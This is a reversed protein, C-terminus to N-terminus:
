GRPGLARHREAAGRWASYFRFQALNDLVVPGDRGRRAAARPTALARAAATPGLLDGASPALAPVQRKFADDTSTSPAVLRIWEVLTLLSSRGIPADGFDFSGPDIELPVPSGVLHLHMRHGPELTATRSRRVEPDTVYDRLIEGQVVLLVDKGEIRQTGRETRCSLTSGELRGGTAVLPRCATRVSSEPIALSRVGGNALRAVEEDADGRPLLRWLDFACRRSRQIADFRTLGLARALAAPDADAVDLVVLAREEEPSTTEVRQAVDGQVAAGPLTAGCYFCSPRALAVPRHCSPCVM